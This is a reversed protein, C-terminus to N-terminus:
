QRDRQIGTLPPGTFKTVFCQVHFSSDTPCIALTCIYCVRCLNLPGNGAQGGCCAAHMPNDAKIQLLSSIVLVNQQRHVDWVVFGDRIEELVQRASVHAM